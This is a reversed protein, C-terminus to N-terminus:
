EQIEKYIIVAGFVAIATAFILQEEHLAFIFLVGNVTALWAARVFSWWLWRMRRKRVTKQLETFEM